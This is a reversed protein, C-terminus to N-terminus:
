FVMTRLNVDMYPAKRPKHHTSTNQQHRIISHNREKGQLLLAAM